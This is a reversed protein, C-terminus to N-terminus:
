QLEHIRIDPLMRDYKQNNGAYDGIFVVDIRNDGEELEFTSTECDASYGNLLPDKLLGNKFDNNFMGALEIKVGNKNPNKILVNCYIYVKSNEIKFTSYFSEEIDISVVSPHYNFFLAILILVSLILFFKKM